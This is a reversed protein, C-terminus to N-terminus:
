IHILSLNWDAGYSRVTKNQTCDDDPTATLNDIEGGLEAPVKTKDLDIDLQQNKVGPERMEYESWVNLAYDSVSNRDAM